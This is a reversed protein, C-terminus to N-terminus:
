KEDQPLEWHGTSMLVDVNHQLQEKIDDTIEGEVDETNYAAIVYILQYVPDKGEYIIEGETIYGTVFRKYTKPNKISYTGVGGVVGSFKVCDLDNVTVEEYTQQDIWEWEKVGLMGIQDSVYEGFYLQLSDFYEATDLPEETEDGFGVYIGHSGRYYKVSGGNETYGGKPGYYRFDAMAFSISGCAEEKDGFYYVVDPAEKEVKTEDEPTQTVIVEPDTSISEEAKTPEPTVETTISPTGTYDVEKNNDKSDNCGSITVTMMGVLLMCILKKKM